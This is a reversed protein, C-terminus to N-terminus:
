PKKRTVRWTGTQAEGGDTRASAYTGEIVDGQLQGEFRTVLLCDCEPDRYPTLQGSVGGGAARVFAISLVEPTRPFPLGVSPDQVPLRQERRERPIMVVDGRATDAGASLKFVISGRRGSTEGHYEGGWEGALTALDAPMGVVPVPAPAYSCGAMGLTLLALSGAAVAKACEVLRRAVVLTRCGPDFFAVHIVLLLGPPLLAHCHGPAVM